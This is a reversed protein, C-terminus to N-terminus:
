GDWIEVSRSLGIRSAGHASFVFDGSKPPFRGLTNGLNRRGSLFESFCRAAEGRGEGERTNRVLQGGARQFLDWGASLWAKIM